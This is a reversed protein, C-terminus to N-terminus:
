DGEKEEQDKRIKVAGTLVTMRHGLSRAKVEIILVQLDSSQWKDEVQVWVQAETVGGEPGYEM